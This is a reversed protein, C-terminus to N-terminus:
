AFLNHGAHKSQLKKHQLSYNTLQVRIVNRFERTRQVRKAGKPCACCHATPMCADQTPEYGAEPAKPAPLASPVGPVDALATRLVRINNALAERLKPGCDDLMDLACLAATALFPPLSASFCYGSGSLRQHDVVERMGACFGGM